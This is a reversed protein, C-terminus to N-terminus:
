RLGPLHASADAPRGTLAREPAAATARALEVAGAAGAARAILATVQAPPTAGTGAFWVWRGDISRPPPDQLPALLARHRRAEKPSPGVFHVGQRTWASRRVTSQPYGGTGTEAAYRRAGTVPVLSGPVIQEYRIVSPRLGPAFSGLVLGRECVILREGSIYVLVLACLVAFVATPALMLVPSEAPNLLTLGSFLLWVAVVGVVVFPGPRDAHVALVEGVEDRHRRAASRATM